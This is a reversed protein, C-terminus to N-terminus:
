IKFRSVIQQKQSSLASTTDAAATTEFSNQLTLHSESNIKVM